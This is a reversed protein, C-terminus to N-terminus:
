FNALQAQGRLEFFDSITKLPLVGLSVTPFAYLAANGTDPIPERCLAAKTKDYLDITGRM